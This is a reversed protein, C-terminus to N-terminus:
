GFSQWSWGERDRSPVERRERLMVSSLGCGAAV